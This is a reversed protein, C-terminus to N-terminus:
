REIAPFFLYRPPNVVRVTVGAQATVIAGSPLAGTVTVTNVLPGPLDSAQVTYTLTGTTVAGPTLSASGLAVTGLPDDVAILHTLTVQGTNTVRVTFRLSDGLHALDTSAVAGAALSGVGLDDNRIVGTAAAVAIQATGSPLYLTM